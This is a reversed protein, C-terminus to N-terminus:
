EGPTNVSDLARMTWNAKAIAVTDVTSCADGGDRCKMLIALGVLLAELQTVDDQVRSLYARLNKTKPLKM